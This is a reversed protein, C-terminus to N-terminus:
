LCLTSAYPSMKISTHLMQQTSSSTPTTKLTKCKEGQLKGKISGIDTGFFDEAALIDKRNIPCNLIGGKEVIELFDKTRLRGKTKQIHHALKARECKKKIYGEMKEKTTTVLALNKTVTV